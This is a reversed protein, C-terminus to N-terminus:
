PRQSREATLQVAVAVILLTAWAANAPVRFGSDVLAHVLAAAIGAIAPRSETSRVLQPMAKWVTRLVAFTLIVGILGAEFFWQLYENHLHTWYEYQVVRQYPWYAVGFAGIGCGFVPFFTFIRLCDRWVLLRSTEFDLDALRGFASPIGTGFLVAALAALGALALRPRLVLQPGLGVAMGAGFAVLGGRSGSAASAVLMLVLSAVLALNRGFSSSATFASWRGFSGSSIERGLLGAAISGAIAILNSFHDRNYYGGFIGSEHTGAGPVEFIGYLWYPHASAAQVLGELALAGGLLSMGFLLRRNWELGRAAPARYLAVALGHLGSFFLWAQLTGTVSVTLRGYSVFESPPLFHAAFSGSSLHILVWSPLPITQLAFIAHVAAAAKGIGRPLGSQGRESVATIIGLAIWLASLPVWASLAVAGHLLPSFLVSVFAIRSCVLGVKSSPTM